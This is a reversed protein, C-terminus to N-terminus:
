ITAAVTAPSVGVAVAESVHRLLMRQPWQTLLEFGDLGASDAHARLEPPELGARVSIAGDVQVIRSRTLVRGALWALAFSRRNRRLDDVLLVRCATAAKRLVVAIDADDLHHLFLSCSIVDAGIAAEPLPETVLNGCAWEVDVGAEAANRRALALSEPSFDVGVPEITASDRKWAHKVVDTLIRGSGCALDVWRIPQQTDIKHQLAPRAAAYLRRATLAWRQLRDLGDYAHRREAAPVDDQDLLEPEMTRVAFARPAFFGNMAPTYSM